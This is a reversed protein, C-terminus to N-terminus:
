ENDQYFDEKEPRTEETEPPVVDLQAMRISLEEQLEDLTLYRLDYRSPCDRTFHGPQKCRFCLPGSAMKRAADLDMPVPHGPTPSIHSHGTKALSPAARVVSTGVPRSTPATSRYTSSASFAENAARNEDVTRAANYWQAPVSDSPRGSAMTAVSNQIQTNLGRRFKVVITKPDTYGSDTILDQFEDLYEDLSRNKQYYASSELRNIALADAHAPTFERRFEDRFDSWGFFKNTETNEPQQEWRFIRAAWKQARGSKMYSMAWVIQTQEDPFETPCLRVYTQCADLFAMGKLRDGDFDPPTAPRVSRTIPTIETDATRPKESVPNTQTRLLVNTLQEMQLRILDQGARMEAMNQEMASMRDNEMAPLSLASSLPSDPSSSPSRLQSSDSEDSGQNPAFFLVINASGFVPETRRPSGKRSNPCSGGHRLQSPTPVSTRKSPTVSM